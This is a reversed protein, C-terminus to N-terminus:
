STLGHAADRADQDGGGPAMKARTASGTAAAPLVALGILGLEVETAPEPVGAM